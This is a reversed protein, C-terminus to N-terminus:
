RNEASSVGLELPPLVGCTSGLFPAALPSFARVYAIAQAREKSRGRIVFQHILQSDPGIGCLARGRVERRGCAAAM